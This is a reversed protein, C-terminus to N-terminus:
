EGRKGIIKEFYENSRPKSQLVEIKMSFLIEKIRSILTLLRAVDEIEMYSEATADDKLRIVENIVQNVEEYMEYFRRSPAETPCCGCILERLYTSKSIGCKDAKATLMDSEYDNMYLKFVKRRHSDFKDYTKNM